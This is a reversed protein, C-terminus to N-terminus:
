SIVQNKGSAKGCYMKQDADIIMSDITPHSEDYFSIGFTMTVALRKGMYDTHTQAIGACLEKAIKVSRNHDELLFILLEEGGWRCVHHPSKVHELFYGAVNLLVKDGCDHGYTDNFKKFNDIDCIIISFEDSTSEYQRLLEMMKRRNWLGTLSDTSALYALEKNQLEIKIRSARIDLVFLFSFILLMVFIVVTNFMYILLQRNVTCVDRCLPEHYVSILKCSVFVLFSTFAYILPYFFKDRFSKLSNSVYFSVPILALAYLSFGFSWGILFTCLYTHAFIEIYTINFALKYMDKKVLAGMMLYVGASVLNFIFLPYVMLALMILTILFHTLAVSRFILTYKFNENIFDPDLLHRSIWRFTNKM